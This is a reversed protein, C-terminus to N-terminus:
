DRSTESAYKPGRHSTYRVIHIYQIPKLINISIIQLIQNLDTQNSFKPLARYGYKPSQYPNPNNCM